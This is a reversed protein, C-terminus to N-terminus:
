NEANLYINYRQYVESKFKLRISIIPEKKYFVVFFVNGRRYSDPYNVRRM